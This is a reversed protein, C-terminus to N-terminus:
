EVKVTIEKADAIEDANLKIKVMEPPAVIKFKKSKFLKEGDSIVIKKDLGPELVRMYVEVDELAIKQPVVFRIGQGPKMPIRSKEKLKGKAFLAANKGALYADMTVYDVIDHVLLVNGCAFIGPCSTMFNENVVAGGTAEDLAIKAMKSLENEPILGVSLLLTDCEIKRDTGEVIQGKDDVEAIIVSEVREKGEIDVVTHKLLLPIDFDELCQVRNRILGSCYPLIEVVCTVEAGELVLRRAMILGIDGSGLIVVRRGIMYNAINIFHQAEGAKFIGSPRTGPIRIMGRTRERCGMTLIVAKAKILHLGNENSVLLERNENLDIVMSKLMVPIELEEVEDIFRQIYEPGTLAEKYIELGFGEHICQNLIGGLHEDREIILINAVGEKKASIAAALGAPGGGIVAVDVNKTIM